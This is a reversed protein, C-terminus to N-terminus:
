DDNYVTYLLGQRNLKLLELFEKVEEKTRKQNCTNTRGLHKYWNIMMGTQMDLIYFEDDNCFLNFRDGKWGAIIDQEINIGSGKFVEEFMQCFEHRDMIYQEMEENVYKSM